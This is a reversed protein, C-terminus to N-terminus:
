GPTKPSIASACCPCIARLAEFTYIGSGHGDSFQFAVAYNGVLSAKSSKLDAPVSEPDLLAAGTFEDRCAACRCQQRLYRYTYESVHGGEWRIRFRDDAVKELKEPTHNV